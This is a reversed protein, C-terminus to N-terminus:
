VEMKDRWLAMAEYVADPEPKRPVDVRDGLAIDVLSGFYEEAIAENAAAASFPPTSTTSTTTTSTTSTTTNTTKTTSGDTPDTSVESSCGCGAMLSVMLMFAAMLIGAKKM